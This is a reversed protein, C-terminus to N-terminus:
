PIVRGITAPDKRGGCYKDLAFSFVSGAGAVKEFLTMSSCFKVDDPAGFIDIVSRGELANVIGTCEALRAGLVPHALYERAEDITRIAYRQAIASKGLGAIQPFIFWMWHSQKAGAALERVVDAYV